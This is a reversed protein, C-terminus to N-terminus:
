LQRGDNADTFPAEGRPQRCIDTVTGRADAISRMRSLFARARREAAKREEGMQAHLLAHIHDLAEEFHALRAVMPRLSAAEDRAAAVEVRAADLLDFTLKDRHEELKVDADRNTRHREGRAKLWATGSQALLTLGGGSGAVFLAEFWTVM